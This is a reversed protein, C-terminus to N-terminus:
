VSLTESGALVYRVRARNDDAKLGKSLRGAGYGTADSTVSLFDGDGVSIVM